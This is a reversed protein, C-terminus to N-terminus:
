RRELSSVRAPRPECGSVRWAGSGCWWVVVRRNSICVAWRSLGTPQTRKGIRDREERGGGSM